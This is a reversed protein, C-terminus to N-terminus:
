GKGESARTPRHRRAQDERVRLRAPSVVLPLIVKHYESQKYNGRLLDAVSWVFAAHNKTTVESWSGIRPDTLIAFRYSPRQLDQLQATSTLPRRQLSRAFQSRHLNRTTRDPWIANGEVRYTFRGGRVQRFEEGAHAEIRKWVAEIDDM